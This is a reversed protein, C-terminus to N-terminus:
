WVKWAVSLRIMRCEAQSFMKMVRGFLITDKCCEADAIRCRAAFMDGFKLWIPWRTRYNCTNWYPWRLDYVCVRSRWLTRTHLYWVRRFAINLHGWHAQICSMSSVAQGNGWKKRVTQKWGSGHKRKMIDDNTLRRCCITLNGCSTPFNRMSSKLVM